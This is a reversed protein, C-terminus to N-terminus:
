GPASTCGAASAWSRFHIKGEGREPSWRLPDFRQPDSFVDPMFHSNAANVIVRWGVPLEYSGMSLPEEVTRMQLDASPRMRTTEDIAWSIYELQKIKEQDLAEGATLTADIEAQARRLTEPHQLLM